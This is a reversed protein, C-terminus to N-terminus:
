PSESEVLRRFTPSDRLDRFWWTTAVESRQGPSAQLHESLHRLASEEDGALTQVFAEMNALERTPDIPNARARHAVSQASDPLGARALAAAVGMLARRDQLNEPQAPVLDRHLRYLSWVDKPDVRAEPMSALWIGCQVFRPDQAFRRRGEKCWRTAEDTQSLDYASTFLRSLAVEPGEFYADAEYAKRAEM